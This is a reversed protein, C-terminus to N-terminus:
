KALIELISNTAREGAKGDFKYAIKERAKILEPSFKVEKNKLEHVCKVLDEFRTCEVFYGSKQAEKVLAFRKYNWGVDLLIMKIGGYACETHISSSGYSIIIDYDYMTDLLNEHQYIKVDLNLKKLFEKYFLVSESAPHIKIAFTIQKDKKLEHFIKQLYTERQKATWLGHEVMGGTVLLIRITDTKLEKQKEKRSTIQQFIKDWFPSGTMSIKKRDIGISTWFDYLEQNSCLNLDALKNWIPKKYLFYLSMDSLLENFAKITNVGTRIRTKMLFINKFIFFIGRRMFKKKDDSDTPVKNAFFRKLLISLNERYNKYGGHGLVPALDNLYYYILPIKLFKAALSFSYSLPERSNNNALVCDPKIDNLAKVADNFNHIDIISDNDYKSNSIKDPQCVLWVLEINTKRKLSDKLNHVYIVLKNKQSPLVSSPILIKM